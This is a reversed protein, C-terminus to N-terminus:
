QSMKKRWAVPDADFEDQELQLEHESTWYGAKCQGCTEVPGQNHASCISIWVRVAPGEVVKEREKAM